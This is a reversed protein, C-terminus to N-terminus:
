VCIYDKIKSFAAEKIGSINMIDEINKFKGNNERYDIISEARSQGIGPLTTLESVGATNINILGSGEDQRYSGSAAEEKDPVYIRQGDTVYDALNLVTEDADSSTGGALRIADAVRMGTEMEYVGPSVVNGCVYVCIADDIISTDSETALVFGGTTQRIATETVNKKHESAYLIGCLIASLAGACICIFKKLQMREKRVLVGKHM